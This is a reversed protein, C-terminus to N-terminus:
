PLRLLSLDLQNYKSEKKPKPIPNSSSNNNPKQVSNPNLNHNYNPSPNPKLVSLTIILKSCVQVILISLDWVESASLKTEEEVFALM